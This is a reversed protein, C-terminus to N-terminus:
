GEGAHDYIEAGYGGGEGLGFDDRLFAVAEARVWAAQFAVDRGPDRGVPGLVGVREVEDGGIGVDQGELVAHLAVERRAEVADVRAAVEGDAAVRAAVQEGRRAVGHEPEVVGLDVARPPDPLVLVERGARVGDGTGDRQKVVRRAPVPRQAIQNDHPDIRRRHLDLIDHTGLGPRQTIDVYLTPHGHM